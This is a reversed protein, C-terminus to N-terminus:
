GRGDAHWSGGALLRKVAYKPCRHTDPTTPSRPVPLHRVPRHRRRRHSRHQVPRNPRRPLGVMLGHRHKRASRLDQRRSQLRLHRLRARRRGAAALTPWAGRGPSSAVLWARGDEDWLPCPDEWGTEDSLRHLHSWPGAPHEATTVFIGEDLTTFHLWYRGRHHRLSGAYIGVNYREMRDSRYEPGLVGIDPVAAGVHRWSVLDRSHLIAMGPSYQFTSTIM